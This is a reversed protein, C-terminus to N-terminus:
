VPIHVKSYEPVERIPHTYPCPVPTKTGGTYQHIFSDDTLTHEEITGYLIENQELLSNVEADSVRLEGQLRLITQVNDEVVEQAKQLQITQQGVTVELTSIRTTLEVERHECCIGLDKITDALHNFRDRFM